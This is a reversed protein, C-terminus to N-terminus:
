RAPLRIQIHGPKHINGIRQRPYILSAGLVPYIVFPSMDMETQSMDMEVYEGNLQMSAKGPPLGKRLRM